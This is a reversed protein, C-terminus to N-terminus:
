FPNGGGMQLDTHSYQIPQVVVAVPKDESGVTVHVVPEVPLEVVPTNVVETEIKDEVAVSDTVPLFVVITPEKESPVGTVEFGNEILDATLKDLALKTKFTVEISPQKTLLNDTNSFYQEIKAVANNYDESMIEHILKQRKESLDTAKLTLM